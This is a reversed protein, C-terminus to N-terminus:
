LNASRTECFAARGPIHAVQFNLPLPRHRVGQGAFPVTVQVQFGPGLGISLGFCVTPRNATATRPWDVNRRTVFWEPLRTAPQQCVLPLNVRCVVSLVSSARVLVSEVNIAEAM